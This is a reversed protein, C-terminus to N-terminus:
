GPEPVPLEHDTGLSAAWAAMAEDDILRGADVDDLARLTRRRRREAGAPDLAYIADAERALRRQRDAKTEARAAHGTPVNMPGM